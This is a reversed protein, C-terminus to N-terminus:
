CFPPFETVNSMCCQKILFHSTFLVHREGLALANPSKSSVTLTVILHSCSSDTHILTQCHARLKLVKYIIQMVEVASCAPRYTHIHYIKKEFIFYMKKLTAIVWEYLIHPLHGPERRLLHHCCWMATGSYKGAWGGGSPWICWQQLGGDSIGGSHSERDVEWFDFQTCLLTLYLHGSYALKMRNKGWLWVCKPNLSIWVLCILKTHCKYLVWFFLHVHATWGWYTHVCHRVSVARCCGQTNNRATGGAADWLTAEAASIGANHTDEWQRDAWVGHHVCQLQLGTSCTCWMYNFMATYHGIEWEGMWCLHLSHGSKKLCVMKPTKQDM